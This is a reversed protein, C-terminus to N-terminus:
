FHKQGKGRGVCGGTEAGKAVGVFSSSVTVVFFFIQKLFSKHVLSFVSFFGKGSFSFITNFVSNLFRSCRTRWKKIMVLIKVKSSFPIFPVQRPFDILLVLNHVFVLCNEFIIAKRWRETTTWRCIWKCNSSLFVAFLILKVRKTKPLNVLLKAM